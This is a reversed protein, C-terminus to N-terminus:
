HRKTKSYKKHKTQRRKGHKLKRTRRKKNKRTKKHKKNKGGRDDRITMAGFANELGTDGENSIPGAEIQPVNKPVVYLTAIHKYIFGFPTQILQYIFIFGGVVITLIFKTGDYFLKVTTKIIGGFMVYVVVLGSMIIVLGAPNSLLEYLVNNLFALLGKILGLPGSGALETFQQSYDRIGEKLFITSNLGVDMWSQSVTKTALWWDANEKATREAARQRAYSTANQELDKIDLEKSMLEIDAEVNRKKENLKKERLPFQKQLDDLLKNLDELQSNLYKEFEDMTEPTSYKNLKMIQIKSSFNIISYLSDTIKKLIGLRQQLSVLTMITYKTSDDFNESTLITIDQALNKELTTILNIMSNYPIKDGIIQITEDEGEKVLDITLSYGFSCFLKSFIFLKSELELKETETMTKDPEAQITTISKQESIVAKKEKVSQKSSSIYDMINSGLSSIYLMPTVYDQTIPLAVTHVVAGTISGLIGNKVNETQKIVESEIKDIKDQTEALSDLDSLDLFLGMDKAQVILEVCTREVELSWKNSQRNFENIIEQLADGGELTPKLLQRFKGLITSIDKKRRADYVHVIKSVSFQDSTYPDTTLLTRTIEDPTLSIVSQSYTHQPTVLSVSFQKSEQQVDTTLGLSLLLFILFLSQLLKTLNGGKQILNEPTITNFNEIYDLLFSMDTQELSTILNDMRNKLIYQIVCQQIIYKQLQNQINLLDQNREQVIKAQEMTIGITTYVHEDLFNPVMPLSTIKTLIIILTEISNVIQNNLDWTIDLDDIKIVKEDTSLGKLLNSISDM